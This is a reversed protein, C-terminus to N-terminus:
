ASPSPPKQANKLTYIEEEAANLKRILESIKLDRKLLEYQFYKVAFKVNKNKYAENPRDTEM